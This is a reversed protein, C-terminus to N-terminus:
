KNCLLFVAAAMGNRLHRAMSGNREKVTEQRYKRHYKKQYEIMQAIKRKRSIEETKVMYQHHNCM